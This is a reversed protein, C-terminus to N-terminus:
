VVSKRDGEPPKAEEEWSVNILHIERNNSLQRIAGLPTGSTSGITALLTAIQQGLGLRKEPDEWELPNVPLARYMWVHGNHGTYVDEADRWDWPTTWLTDADPESKSGGSVGIMKQFKEFM